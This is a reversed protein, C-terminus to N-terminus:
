TDAAAVMDLWVRTIDVTFQEPHCGRRTTEALRYQLCQSCQGDDSDNDSDATQLLM